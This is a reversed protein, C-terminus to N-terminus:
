RTIGKSTLKQDTEDNIVTRLLESLRQSVIPHGRREPRDKHYEAITSRDFGTADAIARYSWGRAVLRDIVEKSWANREQRASRTRERRRENQQRMQARSRERLEPARNARWRRVVVNACDRCIARRGNPNKRDRAFDTEPRERLCGGCRLRPAKGPQGPALSITM